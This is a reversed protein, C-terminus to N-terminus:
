DGPCGSASCLRVYSENASTYDWWCWPDDNTPGHAQSQWNTYGSDTVKWRKLSSFHSYASDCPNQLTYDSPKCTTHREGNTLPNGRTFDVTMTVGVQQPPNGLYGTWNMNGNGDQITLIASSGTLTQVNYEQSPALPPTWQEFLLPTSTYRLLNRQQPHVM